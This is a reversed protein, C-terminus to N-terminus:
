CSGGGDVNIISGTIFSAMDSALFLVSSVIEDVNAFRRQPIIQLLQEFLEKRAMVPRTLPTDVYGPAVGNVQINYQALEVALVKTLGVLGCKSASYASMEALFKYAANSTVNVIKGQKQEIMHPLVAKCGLWHGTLNLDIVRRWDSESMKTIPVRVNIGVNNVLVDIRGFKLAVDAVMANVQEGSSGDVRYFLATGGAANMEEVTNMGAEENIDAVVVKAGLQAFGEAIGKGIGMAAGTVIVVKGEFNFCYDM